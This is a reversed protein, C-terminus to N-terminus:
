RPGRREIPNDMTRELRDLREKLRVQEMEVIAVRGAALKGVEVALTNIEVRMGKVEAFIASAWFGFGALFAGATIGSVWKWIETKHQPVADGGGFEDLPIGRWHRQPRPDYNPPDTERRAPPDPSTM